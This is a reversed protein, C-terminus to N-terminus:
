HLRQFSINRRTLLSLSSSTLPFFFGVCYFLVCAAPTPLPTVSRSTQIGRWPQCRHAGGTGGTKWFWGRIWLNEFEAARTVQSSYFNSM